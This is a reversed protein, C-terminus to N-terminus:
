GHPNKEDPFPRVNKESSHQPPTNTQRLQKDQGGATNSSGAPRYKEFSCVLLKGRNL